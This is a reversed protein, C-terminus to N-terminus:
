ENKEALLKEIYICLAGISSFPSQEQNSFVNENDLLTIHQNFKQQLKQEISVIFNVLALSDLSGSAGWLAATTDKAVQQNEPAYENVEDVAVNIIQTIKQKM